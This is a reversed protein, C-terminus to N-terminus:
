KKVLDTLRDVARYVSRLFNDEHKYVSKILSSSGDPEKRSIYKAGSYTFSDKTTDIVSSRERGTIGDAVRVIISRDMIKKLDKKVNADKIMISDARDISVFVGKAKAYLDLIDKSNELKFLADSVTDDSFSRTINVYKPFYFNKVMSVTDTLAKPANIRM